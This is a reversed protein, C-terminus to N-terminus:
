KNEERKRELLILTILFEKEFAMAEELGLVEYLRKMRYQLTNKHIALRQAAKQVSGQEEYYCAATELLQNWQNDTVADQVRPRMQGVYSAGGHPRLRELLYQVRFRANEISALPTM